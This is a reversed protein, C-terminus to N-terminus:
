DTERQVRQDGVQLHSSAPPSRRETFTASGRSMAASVVADLNIELQALVVDYPTSSLHAAVL